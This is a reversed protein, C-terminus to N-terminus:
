LHGQLMREIPLRARRLIDDPLVVEGGLTELCDVISALTLRKMDACSPLPELAIFNKGPNELRMRHLIGSETGVIIDRSAIEAVKKLMWGTSLVYDALGVVEPTCEPHVLLPAGPHAARVAQVMATTIRNHVPCFGPWFEMARGLKRSINMGLNRDPLFMIPRDAPISAVIQEANSSTCCIDVEAKVAATTNVYAVLVADPHRRRYEAVDAAAAMDAMPCGAEPVPHLVKAGPCMVKATEAMFSVGALVVLSASMRAAQRSLELSDGTFDALDQIDGDVYNHAMLVAGHAKALERIRAMLKQRESVDAM